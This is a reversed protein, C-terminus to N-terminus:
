FRQLEAGPEQKRDMDGKGKSGGTTRQKRQKGARGAWEGAQKRGMDGKGKSGGTTRQKRQKGARGAWEGAHKRGM